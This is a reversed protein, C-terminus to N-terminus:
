VQLIVSLLLSATAALIGTIFALYSWRLYRFKRHTLLMAQSYIDRALTDYLVAPDSTLRALGRKFDDIPMYAIHGFFLLSFSPDTSDLRGGETASSKIRPVVAFIALLLSALAFPALTVVPMVLLPNGLQSASITIVISCVTIMINAKVDAMASQQVQNQSVTRLVHDVTQCPTVSRFEPEFTAAERPDNQGVGSDDPTVGRDHTQSMTGGGTVWGEDLDVGGVVGDYTEPKLCWSGVTMVRGTM